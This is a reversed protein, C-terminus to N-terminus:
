RDDGDVAGCLCEGGVYGGLLLGSEVWFERVLCILWTLRNTKRRVLSERNTKRQGTIEPEVERPVEAAPKAM